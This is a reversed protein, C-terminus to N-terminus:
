LPMPATLLDIPRRPDAQPADPANKIAWAQLACLHDHEAQTIPERGCNPWVRDLDILKNNMTAQWRHGRDMEEGTDPDHPPGFWIHIGVPHGGRVMRFRYFGTTPEEVRFGVALAAQSSTAPTGYIAVPRTL